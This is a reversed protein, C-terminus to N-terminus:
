GAQGLETADGAVVGEPELRQGLRDDHEAAARHRHLEGLKKRPEIGPHRQELAARVNELRTVVVDGAFDFGGKAILPDGDVGAARKDVRPLVAVFFHDHVLVVAPLVFDVGLRHEM